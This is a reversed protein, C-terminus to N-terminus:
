DAFQIAEEMRLLRLNKKPQMPKRPALQRIRWVHVTLADYGTEPAL